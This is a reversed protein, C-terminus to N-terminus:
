PQYYINELNPMNPLEGIVVLKQALETIKTKNLKANESVPTLSFTDAVASEFNFVKKAIARAKPEQEEQYRVAEDMSAVAKKAAEPQENIFKTTMVGIGIPNENVLEGYISPTLPRAGQTLATTLGPEYAYLADISGAELAALQNQAPLAVFEIQAVDLGQKKLYDKSLNTASTGPFTGLKKGILGQINTIPSDKKVIIRDFPHDSTMRSANFIKLKGPEKQEVIMLPIFSIGIGMDIDGRELAEIAQNSSAFPVFEPKLGHKEFLQEEQAIMTPLNSTLNLVGIRVKPAEVVEPTSSHRALAIIAVIAILGVLSYILKRSLSSM